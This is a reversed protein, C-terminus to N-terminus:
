DLNESSAVRQSSRNFRTALMPRVQLLRDREFRDNRNHGTTGEAEREEEIRKGGEVEQLSNSSRDSRGQDSGIVKEEESVWEAFVSTSASRLGVSTETASGGETVSGFLSGSPIPGSVSTEGESGVAEEEEPPRGVAVHPPVFGCDVEVFRRM